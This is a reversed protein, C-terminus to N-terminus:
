SAANIGQEENEDPQDPQVPKGIMVDPAAGSVDGASVAAGGDEEGLFLLEESISDSLGAMSKFLRQVFSWDEIKGEERAIQSADRWISALDKCCRGTAKATKKLYAVTKERTEIYRDTESLISRLKM